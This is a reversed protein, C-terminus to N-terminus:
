LKLLIRADRGGITISRVLRGQQLPTTSELQVADAITNGTQGATLVLRLRQGKTAQVDFLKQWGGDGKRQDVAVTQDGLMYTADSACGDGGPISASLVYRGAEPAIFSWSATAGSKASQRYGRAYYQIPTVMEPWDGQLNALEDDQIIQVAPAEAINLERYSKGLDVTIPTPLPNVLVIGGAFERRLYVPIERTIVLRKLTAGGNGAMSLLFRYDDYQDLTGHATFRWSPSIGPDRMWVSRQYPSMIGRDHNQWGGKDSRCTWQLGPLEGAAMEFEADVRFSDGGKLGLEAVPISLLPTWDTPKAQTIQWKLGKGMKAVPNTWGPLQRTSRWDLLTKTKDGSLPLQKSASTPKGLPADYDQYWLPLGYFTTGFDYAYYNGSLLAVGLGIRMRRFDRRVLEKVGPTLSERGKGIRWDQNGNPHCMVVFTVSPKKTGTQWRSFGDVADIASMNGSAVDDLMVQGEVQRGNVHSAHGMDCDNGVIIPKPKWTSFSDFFRNQAAMWASNLLALDDTKGDRNIDIDGFYSIRSMVSDIFLGDILGQKLAPESVRSAMDRLGKSVKDDLLNPIRIQGAWWRLEEGNSRYLTWNDDTGPPREYANTLTETRLILSRPNVARTNKRIIKLDDLSWGAIVMLDYRGWVSFDLSSASKLSWADLGWMNGIKPYESKPNAFCAIASILCLLCALLRKM